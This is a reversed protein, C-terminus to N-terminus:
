WSLFLSVMSFVLLSLGSAGVHLIHRPGRSFDKKNSGHPWAVKQSAQEVWIILLKDAISLLHGVQLFGIVPLTLTKWYFKVYKKNCSIYIVFTNNRPIKVFSKAHDPDM